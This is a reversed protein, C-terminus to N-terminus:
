DSFQKFYLAYYNLTILASRDQIQLFVTCFVAKKNTMNYPNRYSNRSLLLTIDEMNLM